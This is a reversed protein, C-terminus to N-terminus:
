ICGNILNKLTYEIAGEYAETPSKYEKFLFTHRFTHEENNDSAHDKFRVVAIWIGHKEHMWMVVDAITQASVKVNSDNHNKPIKWYAVEGIYWANRIPTDFGKEKLLKALEFNVPTKM